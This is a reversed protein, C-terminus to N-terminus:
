PIPATRASSALEADILKEFASLPQSGRLLVGNIFFSPTGSVGASAGEGLDRDVSQHWSGAAVCQDFQASDLGLRKATEALGASDLKSQNEFLADHFEWFRSQAAACRSAEAALQANQHIQRLPFDRFGFAVKDGYKALVDRITPEVQKCYSM